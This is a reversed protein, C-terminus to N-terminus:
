QAVLPDCIPKELLLQRGVDMLLTILLAALAVILALIGLTRM